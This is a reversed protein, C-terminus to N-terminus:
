ITGPARPIVPPGSNWEACPGRWGAPSPRWTAWRPPWGGAIGPLAGTGGGITLRPTRTRWPRSLRGPKSWGPPWVRAPSPIWLGPHTVWWSFARGLWRAPATSIPLADHLSLTYIETTATDNFFFLHRPDCPM